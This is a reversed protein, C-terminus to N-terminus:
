RRRDSGTECEAAGPGGPRVQLAPRRLSVAVAYAGCAPTLRSAWTEERARTMLFITYAVGLAVLFLVAFLPLDYGINPYGIARFMLGAAGMAAAFSLLVSAILLM